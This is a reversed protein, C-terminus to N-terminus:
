IDGKNSTDTAESVVEADIAEVTPKSGGFTFHVPTIRPKAEGVKGASLAKDMFKLLDLKQKFNVNQVSPDLPLALLRNSEVAIQERSWGGQELLGQLHEKLDSRLQYAAHAEGKYGALSYAELTPRGAALHQLFAKNKPTLPRPGKKPAELAKEPEVQHKDNEMSELDKGEAGRGGLVEM